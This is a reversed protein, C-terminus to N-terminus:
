RNLNKDEDGFLCDFFSQEARKRRFVIQGKGSEISLTVHILHIEGAADFFEAAPEFDQEAGSGFGWGVFAEAAFGFKDRGFARGAAFFEGGRASVEEGGRKLERALQKRPLRNGC